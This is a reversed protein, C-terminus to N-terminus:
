NPFKGGDLENFTILVIKLESDRLKNQSDYLENHTNMNGDNWTNTWNFHTYM